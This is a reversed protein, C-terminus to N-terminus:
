VYFFVKHKFYMFFYKSHIIKGIQKVQFNTPMVKGLKNRHISSVSNIGM